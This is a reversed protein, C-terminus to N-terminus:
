RSREPVKASVTWSVGNVTIAQGVTILSYAAQTTIPLFTFFSKRAAGTGTQRKLRLGRAHIGNVNRSGSVDASVGGMNVVAGALLVPAPAPHAAATTDALRIKCTLSNSETEYVYNQYAPM